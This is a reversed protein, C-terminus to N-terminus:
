HRRGRRPEWRPQRMPNFTWLEIGRIRLRWAISGSTESHLSRVQDSQCLAKARMGAFDAQGGHFLLRLGM